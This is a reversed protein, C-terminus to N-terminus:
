LSILRPGTGSPFYGPCGPCDTSGVLGSGDFIVSGTLGILGGFGTEIGSCIM